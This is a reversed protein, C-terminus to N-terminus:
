TPTAFLNIFTARCPQRFHFGSRHHLLFPKGFVLGFSLPLYERTCHPHVGTSGVRIRVLSSIRVWSGSLGDRTTKRRNGKLPDRTIHRQWKENGRGSDERATRSRLISAGATEKLCRCRETPEPEELCRVVFCWRYVGTSQIRWRGPRCHVEQARNRPSIQPTTRERNCHQCSVAVSFLECTTKEKGPLGFMSRAMVKKMSGLSFWPKPKLSYRCVGLARGRRLQPQLAGSGPLGSPGGFGSPEQYIYTQRGM